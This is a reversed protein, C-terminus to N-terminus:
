VGKNKREKRFKKLAKLSTEKVIKGKYDIYEDKKLKIPKLGLLKRFVNMSKIKDKEKLGKEIQESIRKGYREEIEKSTPLSGRIEKKIREVM